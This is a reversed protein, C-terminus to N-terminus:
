ESPATHGRGVWSGGCCGGWLPPGHPCPGFHQETGVGPSPAPLAPLSAAQFNQLLDPAVPAKGQFSDLLWAESRSEPHVGAATRCEAPKAAAGASRGPGEGRTTLVTATSLWQSPTLPGPHGPARPLEASLRFPLAPVPAALPLFALSILEAGVRAGCSSVPFSVSDRSVCLGCGQPLVCTCVRRGSLPGCAEALVPTLFM